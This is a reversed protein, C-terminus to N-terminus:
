KGSEEFEDLYNALNRLRVAPKLPAKSDELLALAKNCRLCLIGRISQRRFMRKSEEIFVKKNHVNFTEKEGSLKVVIINWINGLKRSKIQIRDFRHDHDLSLRTKGPPRACGKCVGGQRALLENYEALTIGFNKQYYKDAAKEKDTM